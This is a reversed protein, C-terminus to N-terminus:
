DKTPEMYKKYVAHLLKGYKPNETLVEDTNSEHFEITNGGAAFKYISGNKKVKGIEVLRELVSHFSFFGRDNLLKLQVERMPPIGMGNKVTKINHVTGITYAIKNRTRKISGIRAIQLRADSFHKVANGGPTKIKSGRRALFQNTEIKDRVQNLFLILSNTYGIYYRVHKLVRNFLNALEGVQAYTEEEKDKEAKTYMGAISDVVVIFPMEIIKYQIELQEEHDASKKKKKNLEIIKQRAENKSAIVKKMFKLLWEMFGEFHKPDVYRFKKHLEETSLGNMSAIRILWAPDFKHEFDVFYALGGSKIIQVCYYLALTTKGSSEPGFVEFIKNLPTGFIGSDRKIALIHDLTPLESYMTSVVGLSHHSGGYLGYITDPEKTDWYKNFEEAFKDQPDIVVADVPRKRTVKKKTSKPM